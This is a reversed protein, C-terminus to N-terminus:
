VGSDHISHCLRSRGGNTTSEPIKLKEQQQLERCKLLLKKSTAILEERDMEHLRKAAKDGEQM